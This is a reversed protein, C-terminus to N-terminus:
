RGGPRGGQCPLCSLWWGLLVKTSLREKGLACVVATVLYLFPDPNELEPKRGMLGDFGTKRNTQM